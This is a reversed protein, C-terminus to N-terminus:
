IPLAYGPVVILIGAEIIIGVYLGNPEWGQIFQRWDGAGMATTSVLYLIVVVFNFRAVQWLFYRFASSITKRYHLVLLAITGTV